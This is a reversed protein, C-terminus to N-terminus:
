KQTSKRKFLFKLFFLDSKQYMYNQYKKSCWEISLLLLVILNSGRANMQFYFSHSIQVLSRVLLGGPRRIKQTNLCMKLYSLIIAPWWSMFPPEQLTKKKYISHPDNFFFSGTMTVLFSTVRTVVMLYAITKDFVVSITNTVKQGFFVVVLPSCQKLYIGGFPLPYQHPNTLVISLDGKIRFKLSISFRVHCEFISLIAPSPHTYSIAKNQLFPFFVFFFFEKWFLLGNYGSSQRFIVVVPHGEQGVEGRM